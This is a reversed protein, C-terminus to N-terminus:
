VWGMFPFEGATRLVEGTVPQVSLSIADFSLDSPGSVQTVGITQATGALGTRTLTQTEYAHPTGGQIFGGVVAFASNSYRRAQAVSGWAAGFSNARTLLYQRKEDDTESGNPDFIYGPINTQPVYQFSTRHSPSATTVVHDNTPIYTTSPTPGISVTYAINENKTFDQTLTQDSLFFFGAESPDPTLSWVGSHAQNIAQTYISSASYEISTAGSTLKVKM